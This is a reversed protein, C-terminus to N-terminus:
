YTQDCIMCYRQGPKGSVARGCSPCADPNKATAKIAPAASPVAPAVRPPVPPRAPPVPPKAPVPASARAPVPPPPVPVPPPSSAAPMPLDFGEDDDLSLAAPKPAVKPRAPVPAPPAAGSGTRVTVTLTGVEKAFGDGAATERGMVTDDCIVRGDRVFFRLAVPAAGRAWVTCAKADSGVKVPEPGLTVTITEREGYRVELWARRFAAEAVAVMLGICLGLVLGGVLRGVLDGTASSAALFGIAGAAGGVGGGALGLTWKMNPVFLSLGAGALGGLLAWGFVQFVRGLTPMDPPVLQYLGEGAAGGVLGVALGGLLGVAAGGASPLSGRLYHHQGGLLFLCVLAAIAATWVGSRLVLRGESGAAAREGTQLSKLEPKEARGAVQPKTDPNKAIAAATVAGGFSALLGDFGDDGVVVDKLDFYKGGGKDSGAAVLPTYADKDFRLGVVHLADINAGRVANATGRVATAVDGGREVKPPADTVLLLVKTADKRFPLKCAASVGELSSEPITGGGSGIVVRLKGVEGRFVDPDATFPGGKFEIVEVKAGANNFNQFTVLGLRYDIRAKGLAGAFTGIGNKLDDIAWQMSPAVGLVFVVDALPKPPNTVKFAIATEGTVTTGGVAAEAVARVSKSAVVPATASGIVLVEGESRDAPITVPDATVGPPLGDLRVTVPGTFGDRAIQVPFTNRGEVFVEVDRSAAVALQAGPAAPAPPTLVRYLPEAFVLAGLLGGVAGYLAFLLPKPLGALFKPAPM